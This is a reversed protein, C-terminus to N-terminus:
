AGGPAPLARSASRSSARTTTSRRRARRVRASARRRHGAQAGTGHLDLLRRRRSTSADHHRGPGRRRLGPAARGRPRRRAAPGAGRGRRRRGAPRRGFLNGLLDGLDGVDDTTSAHRRRRAAAPAASGAGVPGLRRVEDYEKRKAEDGVVDYAASIEKFREEAATDGPNADPHNQAPSSATRRPSRRRPPRRPCASSRTTTRRSGSGSRRGHSGLGQGEGHGPAARPGELPLRHAAGRHRGAPEGDGDGARAGRRRAANPDFPKGARISAGRPGGEALAGICRRGSRSSARRRRPRLGGDCADLVPLLKEVLKGTPASSRTPESRTSTRKRYNEFDAQLRLAIDSSSTASAGALSPWTTARPRRREVDDADASSSRRRARSAGDTAMPTPTTGSRDDRCRDSTTTSSRPTSSTTTTRGHRRVPRGVHGAADADRAAAEYLKQSFSQSATMLARHGVQHRRHRHGDLATKLDALATRSPPGERRGVVKDGQERLLKETQYVLTDANNRVEAEERRRRDEEAHAEADKVMQDIDDKDLSSQGTITM